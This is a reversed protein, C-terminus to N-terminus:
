EKDKKFYDVSFYADVIAFLLSLSAFIM